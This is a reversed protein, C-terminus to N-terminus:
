LLTTLGEDKAARSLRRDASAFDLSETHRVVLASSLQVADGARLEHKELLLRARRLVSESMPVVDLQTWAEEFAQAARRYQLADLRRERVKRNFASFVEAYSLSATTIRGPGSFIPRVVDSGAEENFLKALASSDLYTM